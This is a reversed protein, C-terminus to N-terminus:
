KGTGALSSVDKAVNLEPVLLGQATGGAHVM